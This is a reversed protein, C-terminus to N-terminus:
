RSIRPRGSASLSDAALQAVKKPQRLRRPRDPMSRTTESAWPPRTFAMWRGKWPALSELAAWGMAGAVEERGRGFGQALREVLVQARAQHCWVERGGAGQPVLEHVGVGCRGGLGARGQVSAKVVRGGDEGQGLGVTPPSPGGVADLAEVVRDAPPLPDEADEGVPVRGDPAQARHELLLVFLPRCAVAGQIHRGIPEPTRCSWALLRGCLFV